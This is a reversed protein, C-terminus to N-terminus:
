DDLHRLLWRALQFMVDDWQSETSGPSVLAMWPAHHYPAPRQILSFNLKNDISPKSSVGFRILDGHRYRDESFADLWELSPAPNFEAFRQSPLGSEHSLAWLM